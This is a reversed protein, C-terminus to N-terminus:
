EDILLLLVYASPRGVDLMDTGSKPFTTSVPNKWGLM